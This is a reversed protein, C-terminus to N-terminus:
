GRFTRTHVHICEDMIRGLCLRPLFSRRAVYLIQIPWSHISIYSRYSSSIGYTTRMSCFIVKNPPSENTASPNSFINSHQTNVLSLLCVMGAVGSGLLFEVVGISGNTIEYSITGFSVAPALCAFYLFLVAPVVLRKKKFADTWDSKYYKRRRLIDNRLPVYFKSQFRCSVIKNCQFSSPCSCIISIPCASM